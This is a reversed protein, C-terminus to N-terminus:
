LSRHRVCARLGTKDPKVIGERRKGEGGGGGGFLSVQYVELRVGEKFVLAAVVRNGRMSNRKLLGVVLLLLRLLVVRQQRDDVCLHPM